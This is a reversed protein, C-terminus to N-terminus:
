PLSKLFTYRFLIELMLLCAALLAFPLIGNYSPSKKTRIRELVDSLKLFNRDLEVNTRSRYMFGGSVTAMDLLPKEDIDIVKRSFGIKGNQVQPMSAFGESSMLFPYISIGLKKSLNIQNFFPDREAPNGSLFLIITKNKARSEEFNELATQLGLSLNPTHSFDPEIDELSKKLAQIDQTIPVLTTALKGMIVIGFSQELHNDLFHDLSAKLSNLRNPHFDKALVNVSNDILLITETSATDPLMDYRVSKPDAMAIVLFGIGVMRLIFPLHILKQRFTKKYNAFGSYSSIQIISRQRRYNRFYFISMVPLLNLLLLLYPHTYTFDPLSIM